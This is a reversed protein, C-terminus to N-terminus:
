QPLEVNAAELAAKLTRFTEDHGEVRYCNYGYPPVVTYDGCQYRSVVVGEKALRFSAVKHYICGVYRWEALRLADDYSVPKGDTRTVIGKEVLGMFVPAEEEATKEPYIYDPNNDSQKNLDLKIALGSRVLSDLRIQRPM